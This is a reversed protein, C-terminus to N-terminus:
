EVVSEQPQLDLLERVGPLASIDQRIVTIVVLVTGKKSKRTQELFFLADSFYNYFVIPDPDKKKKKYFVGQVMFFPIPVSRNFAENLDLGPFREMWRELAHDSAVVKM